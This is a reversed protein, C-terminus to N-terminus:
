KSEMYRRLAIVIDGDSWNVPDATEKVDNIIFKLIENHNSPRDMGMKQYLKNLNYEIEADFVVEDKVAFLEKKAFLEEMVNYPELWESGKQEDFLFEPLIARMQDENPTEDFSFITDLYFEIAPKWEHFNGDSTVEFGLLDKAAILCACVLLDYPKRETKCFSWDGENLAIRFSEHALNREENGNFSVLKPTFSPKGTGDWGCIKIEDDAYYGGATESTKPLAKYLTKCTKSFENFKEQSSKKPTFYHTYSM